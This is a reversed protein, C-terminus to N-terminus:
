QGELFCFTGEPCYFLTLVVVFGAGLVIRAPQKILALIFLILSFTVLLLLVTSPLPPRSATLPTQFGLYRSLSLLFVIGAPILAGLWNAKWSRTERPTTIVWGAITLGLTLIPLYFDLGRIPLTPQLVFLALTSAALLLYVRWGPHKIFGLLAAVLISALILVISM